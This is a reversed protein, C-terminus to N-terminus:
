DWIFDTEKLMVKVEKETYVKENYSIYDTADMQALTKSEVWFCMPTSGDSFNIKVRAHKSLNLHDSIISCSIQNILLAHEREIADQLVKKVYSYHETSKLQELYSNYIITSYDASSAIEKILKLQANTYITKSSSFSFKSGYSPSICEEFEEQTILVPENTIAFYKNQGKKMNVCIREYTSPQHSLMNAYSVSHYEISSIDSLNGYKSPNEVFLFSIETALRFSNSKMLIERDEESIEEATQLDEYAALIYGGISTILLLFVAIRCIILQPSTKIGLQKKM